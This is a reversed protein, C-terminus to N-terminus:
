VLCKFINPFSYGLDCTIQSKESENVLVYLIKTVNSFIVQIQVIYREIAHINGVFTYTCMRLLPLTPVFVDFIFITLSFFTVIILTHLFVRAFM